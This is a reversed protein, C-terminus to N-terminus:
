ETAEPPDDLQRLRASVQEPGPCDARTRIQDTMAHDM